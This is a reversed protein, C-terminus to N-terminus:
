KGAKKSVEPSQEQLQKNGQEVIKGILQNVDCFPQKTLCSLVYNVENETLKLVITKDM